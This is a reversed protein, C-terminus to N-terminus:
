ATGGRKVSDEKTDISDAGDADYEIDKNSSKYPDNSGGLVVVNTPRHMRDQSRRRPEIDSIQVATDTRLHIVPESRDHSSAVGPARNFKISNTGPGREGLKYSGEEVHVVNTPEVDRANLTALLTNTYLKGLMFNFGLHILNNMTCFAILDVVAIISTLLGTNVTYRLLKNILADTRGFGTRQTMLATSLMYVVLIDGLAASGLWVGVLWRYEIFRSFRGLVWTMAFSSLGFALQTLSVFGIVVGLIQTRRTTTFRSGVRKTFFWARQAFFGQVMFTIVATLGVETNLSWNNFQLATPNAYNTIVYYYEMHCICVLQFTDVIWLVLVFMRDFTSDNVYRAWYIYTQLTMIGYLLTAVITGIFTAGFTEDMEGM